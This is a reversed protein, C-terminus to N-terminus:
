QFLRFYQFLPVFQFVRNYMMLICLMNLLSVCSPIFVNCNYRLIFEGNFFFSVCLIYDFRFCLPSFQLFHIAFFVCILCALFRTKWLPLQQLFKFVLTLFEETIFGHTFLTSFGILYNLVLSFWEFCNKVLRFTWSRTRCYLYNSIILCFFFM